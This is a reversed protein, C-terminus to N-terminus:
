LFYVYENIITRLHENFIIFIIAAGSLFSGFPLATKLDAKKFIMLFIGWAAAVWVALVIAFIGPYGLILGIALALKIDGFGMWQGRSVLYIIAFALGFLFGWLLLSMLESRKFIVTFILAASIATFVIKDPLIMYIADFFILLLFLNIILIDYINNTNFALGRVYFYLVFVLAIILEVVPYTMSIEAGCYRCNGKLYVYSLLPILDYWKLQHHCNMCESRGTLIGEKKDLRFLLVNFFSGACLGFLFIMLYAMIVM